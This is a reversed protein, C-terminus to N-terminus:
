NRSLNEALMELDYGEKRVRLDYYFVTAAAALLPAILASGLGQAIGEVVAQTSTKAVFEGSVTSTVGASVSGSLVSSVLAGLAFSILGSIIGVLLALGFARWGHGTTLQWSRELADKPGRGELVFASVSVFLMCMAILGPVGCLMFGVGIVLSKLLVYGIFPVIRRGIRGFSGGISAQRGLIRESIASTMAGSGIETGITAFFLTVFLTLFALSLDVTALLVVLGTLLGALVNPVLAIGFLLGFNRRYMGFSEDLIETLTMPRMVFEKEVM